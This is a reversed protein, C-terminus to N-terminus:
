SGGRTRVAVTGVESLDEGWCSEPSGVWLPGFSARPFSPLLRSARFVMTDGTLHFVPPTPTRPGDRGEERGTGGVEGGPDVERRGDRGTDFNERGGHREQGM